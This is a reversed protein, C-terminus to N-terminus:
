PFHKAYFKDFSYKDQFSNLFREYLFILKKNLKEGEIVNGWFGNRPLTSPCDTLWGNPSLRISCFGEQCYEKCVNCISDRRSSTKSNKLRVFIKGTDYYPFSIGYISLDEPVDAKRKTIYENLRQRVGESETNSTIRQYKKDFLEELLAFDYFNEKWKVEEGPYCVLDLLSVDVGLGEAFDIIGDLESINEKTIVTNIVCLKKKELLMKIGNLVRDYADIGVTRNFIEKDTTDFSVKFFDVYDSEEASLFKELLFGNTTMEIREIGVEKMSKCFGLIDPRILPEGGTLSVRKIGIGVCAKIIKMMDETPINKSFPTPNFLEMNPNCYTCKFNCTNTVAIRLTVNGKSNM